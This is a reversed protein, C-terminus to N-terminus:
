AAERVSIAPASHLPATHQAGVSPLVIAKINPDYLASITRTSPTARYRVLYPTHPGTNRVFRYEHTGHEITSAKLYGHAHMMRLYSRVTGLGVDTMAALDRANFRAKLRMALWIRQRKVNRAQTVHDPATYIVPQDTRAAM